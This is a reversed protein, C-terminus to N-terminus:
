KLHVQAESWSSHSNGGHRVHHELWEFATCSTLPPATLANRLLHARPFSPVSEGHTARRSSKPSSRKPSALAIGQSISSRRRRRRERSSKSRPSSTGEGLCERAQVYTYCTPQLCYGKYVTYEGQENTITLPECIGGGLVRAKTRHTKVQGCLHCLGNREAYATLEQGSLITEGHVLVGHM